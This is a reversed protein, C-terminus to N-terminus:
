SPLAHACHYVCLACAPQECFAITALLTRTHTHPPFSLALLAYPARTFGRTCARVCACVCACVCAVALAGINKNAAGGLRHVASHVIKGIQNVFVMVEEQASVCRAPCTQFVLSCAPASLGGGGERGGSL